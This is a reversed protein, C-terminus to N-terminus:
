MCEKKWATLIWHLQDKYMATSVLWIVLHMICVLPAAADNPIQIQFAGQTPNPYVNFDFIEERNSGATMKASTADSLIWQQCKAGNWTWQQV